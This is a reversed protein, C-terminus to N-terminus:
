NRRFRKSLKSYIDNYGKISTLMRKKDRSLKDKLLFDLNNKKSIDLDIAILTKNVFFNSTKADGHKFKIWKIRKFFANIISALFVSDQGDSIARDLREGKVSESVFYSNKAGLIGKEECILVPRATQIGAANLWITAKLSNYARTSKFIRKCGHVFSKIRYKKVFFDDGLIKVKVILHGSENKIVQGSSILYDESEICKIIEEKKSELDKRLLYNRSNDRFSLFNQSASKDNLRNFNSNQLQPKLYMKFARQLTKNTIKAHNKNLEEFTCQLYTMMFRYFDRETLGFQLVSHLFGGLDKILWRFPVKTRIQARHLDILSLDMDDFRIKNKIHIHCLYLDKHNLGSEHVSRILNAVNEILKKKETFSLNKHHGQLFFDELSYTNYLEETILFSSSNAPNFGKVGFGKINPCNINNQTLHNLADYERRAGITPTKLQLLNKFIEKWGVPGHFKIFYSKNKHKFKKTVRNEYQRYIRGDISKLEDIPTKHFLSWLDDDLYKPKQM